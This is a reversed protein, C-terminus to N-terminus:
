FVKAALVDRLAFEHAQGRRDVVVVAADEDRVSQVVGIAETFPHAPDGHNRLRMSLKRGLLKRWAGPDNLEAAELRRM